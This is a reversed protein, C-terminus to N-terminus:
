LHTEYASHIIIEPQISIKLCDKEKILEIIRGEPPEDEIEIEPFEAESNDEPPYVQGQSVTVFFTFSFALILRFGYTKM